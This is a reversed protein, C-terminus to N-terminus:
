QKLRRLWMDHTAGSDLLATVIKNYQHRTIGKEALEALIAARKGGSKRAKIIYEAIEESSPENDARSVHRKVRREEEMETKRELQARQEALAGSLRQQLVVLENQIHRQVRPQEMRAACAKWSKVIGKLHKIGADKAFLAVFAKGAELMADVPGLVTARTTAISEIGAIYRSYLTPIHMSLVEAFTPDTVLAFAAERREDDDPTGERALTEMIAAIMDEEAPQDHVEELSRM